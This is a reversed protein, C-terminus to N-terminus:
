SINSILCLFQLSLYSDDWTWTWIYWFSYTAFFFREERWYNRTHVFAITTRASPLSPPRVWAQSHDRSRNPADWHGPDECSHFFGSTVSDMREWGGGFHEMELALFVRRPSGRPVMKGPGEGDQIDSAMAIGTVSPHSQSSLLVRDLSTSSSQLVDCYGSPRQLRKQWSKRGSCLSQIVRFPFVHPSTTVAKHMKDVSTCAEPLLWHRSCGRGWGGVQVKPPPDLTEKCLFPWLLGEPPRWM